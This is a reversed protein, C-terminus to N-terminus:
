KLNGAAVILGAKDKGEKYIQLGEENVVGIKGEWGGFFSSKRVRGSIQAGKLVQESLPLPSRPRPPPPRKGMLQLKSTIIRAFIFYAHDLCLDNIRRGDVALFNDQDKVTIKM